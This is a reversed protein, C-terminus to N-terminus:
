KGPAITPQDIWADFSEPQRILGRAQSRWKIALGAPPKINTFSGATSPEQDHWSASLTSDNTLPSDDTFCGHQDARRVPAPARSATGTSGSRRSPDNALPSPAQLRRDAPPSTRATASGSAPPKSTSAAKTQPSRNATTRDYSELEVQRLLKARKVPDTEKIANAYDQERKKQRDNFARDEPTNNPKYVRDYGNNMRQYAQYYPQSSSISRRAAPSEPEAGDLENAYNQFTNARPRDRIAALEPDGARAFGPQQFVHSHRVGPLRSYGSNGYPNFTNGQAMATSAISTLVLFAFLARGISAIM